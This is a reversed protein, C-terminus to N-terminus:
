PSLMHKPMLLSWNWIQSRCKSESLVFKMARFKLYTMLLTLAYSINVEFLSFEIFNHLYFLKVFQLMSYLTHKLTINMKIDNNNKHSNIHCSKGKNPGNWSATRENPESYEHHRVTVPHFYNQIIWLPPFCLVWLHRLLIGYKKGTFSIELNLQCTRTKLWLLM